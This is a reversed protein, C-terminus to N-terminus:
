ARVQSSARRASARSLSPDRPLQSNRSKAVAASAANKSGPFCPNPKARFLRHANGVGSDSGGAPLTQLQEAPHLPHSGPLSRGPFTGAPPHQTSLAPQMPGARAHALLPHLISSECSFIRRFPESAWLERRDWTCSCWSAKERRNIKFLRKPCGKFASLGHPVDGPVRRM